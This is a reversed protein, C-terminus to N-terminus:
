IHTDTLRRRKPGDQGDDDENIHMCDLNHQSM